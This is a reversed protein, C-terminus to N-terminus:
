AVGPRERRRCRSGRGSGSSSRPRDPWATPSPCAATRCRSPLAAARVSRAVGVLRAVRVLRRLPTGSAAARHGADGSLARPVRRVAAQRGAGRSRRGRVDLASSTGAEIGAATDILALGIGQRLTPSFTGSTVEGVQNGDADLVAMHARPIGRDLAELGRLRRKPGAEREALLAERGWFADKKWGVAWGSRAQVPSIELSLDQGHLPYGMEIRLTDRAGLGAPM